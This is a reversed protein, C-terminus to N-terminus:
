DSKLNAKYEAYKEILYDLVAIDTQDKCRTVFEPSEACFYWFDMHKDEELPYRSFLDDSLEQRIQTILIDNKELKVHAKLMKTRGSLGNVVTNLTGSKAESLIRETRTARKGTYGPIGVDYFNIEPEAESNGVDLMLNGTLIKGVIVEDLENIEESLNIRMAGNSLIIDDIIIEKTTYQIATFAITDQLKAEIVFAGKANTVTFRKSTKNIVHINEIDDEGSVIGSIQKM